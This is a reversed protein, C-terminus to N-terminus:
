PDRGDALTTFGVLDVFLVSVQRREAVPVVARLDARRAASSNPTAAPAKAALGASPRPAPRTVAAGCAGCFRAESAVAAGCAPCRGRLASGCAGCYRSTAPNEAGCADCRKAM